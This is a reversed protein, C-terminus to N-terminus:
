GHFHGLSLVIRMSNQMWSGLLHFAVYIQPPRGFHQPSVESGSATVQLWQQRDRRRRRRRRRRM